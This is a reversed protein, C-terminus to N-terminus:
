MVKARASRRGERDLDLHDRAEAGGRLLALDELLEGGALDVHEDAGVAQERGVHPGLVEAQHDDVLLLAEAHALLLQQAVELHLDVHQAERRRRDRARQLHRERADAVDRDDLRRRAAPVLDAGVDALVVVVQHADRDLLLERAPALDEVQVVPDLRDVLRGLVHALERGPRADDDGVPLHVLALELLHHEGEEGALGVHEDRRRDDLAADVDRGGVRQDDVAGVHEAQRLEVLDAAADPAAVRVGVGVEEVRALLQERGLRRRAERVSESWM